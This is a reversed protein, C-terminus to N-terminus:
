PELDHSAREESSENDDSVTKKRRESVSISGTREAEIDADDEEYITYLSDPKHFEGMLEHMKHMSDTEYRRDPAESLSGEDSLDEGEIPKPRTSLKKKIWHGISILLPALLKASAYGAGGVGSCLLLLFGVPPAFLSVVLGVIALVSFYLGVSRDLTQGLGVSKLDREVGLLHTKLREVELKKAQYKLFLGQVEHNLYAIEGLDTAKNLDHELGGAAKQIAQMDWQAREILLNLGEEKKKFRFYDADVKYFLYAGEILVLSSAVFAIIIAVPPFVLAAITLGLLVASYLWRANNNLSVPIKEKLLFAALYM